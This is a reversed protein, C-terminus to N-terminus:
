DGASELWSLLANADEWRADTAIWDGEYTLDSGLLVVIVPSEGAVALVLCGGAEETSGTKVGVIDERGEQMLKNTTVATYERQEPGVSTFTYGPMAVIEALVPNELLAASAIALDRASSWADSADNGDANAFHSHSMGLEEAKANMADAFVGRPDDAAPDIIGGVHRALARAGDSGSPVMLGTLLQEVTLTDGAVLAMNSYVLPDVLDSEEITVEEDLAAHDMVVLATVIKVTSGVDREDDANLEYSVDGSATDLVYISQATLAPTDGSPERGPKDRVSDTQFALTETGQDTTPTETATLPPDDPSETKGLRDGLGIAGAALVIVLFAVTAVHPGQILGTRSTPM